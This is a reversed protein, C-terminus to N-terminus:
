FDGHRRRLEDEADADKASQAAARQAMRQRAAAAQEPTPMNSKLNDAWSPLCESVGIEAAFERILIGDQPLNWQAARKYADQLIKEINEPEPFGEDESTQIVQGLWGLYIGFQAGRTAQAYDQAVIMQQGVLDAATQVDIQNEEAFKTVAKGTANWERGMGCFELVVNEPTWDIPAYQVLAGFQARHEQAEKIAEEQYNGKARLAAFKKKLYSRGASEIAYIFSNKLIDSQYEIRSHTKMTNVETYDRSNANDIMNLIITEDLGTLTQIEAITKGEKYAQAIATSIQQNNM